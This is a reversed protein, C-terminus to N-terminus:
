AELGAREAIRKANGRLRQPYNKRNALWNKIEAMPWARINPSLKVGPPFGEDDIIRGLQAWSDVIGATKLDAFRVYRPLM